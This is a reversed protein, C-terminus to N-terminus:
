KQLEFVDGAFVLRSVLRSVLGLVSQVKENSFVQTASSNSGGMLRQAADM